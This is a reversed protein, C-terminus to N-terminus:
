LYGLDQLNEVVDENLNYEEPDGEPWPGYEQKITSFLREKLKNAVNEDNVEVEPTSRVNYLQERGLSDVVLKYDTTRIGKRGTSFDELGSDSLSRGHPTKSFKEVDREGHEIFVEDRTGDSILSQGDTFSPIEGLALESITPYLDILSALGSGSDVKDASIDPGTLLLPVRLTEDFLKHSHGMLGHEGLQEGHDATVVLYTDDALERKYFELFRGFEDDLYKISAAYWRKLVEIEADSLYSPNSLYQGIGDASQVHELRDLRVDSNRHKGRKNLLYELLFLRPEKFEPDVGERYGYPPHYPAHAELLNAFAFFPGDSSRVHNKLHNFKFRTNKMEGRFATRLADKFLEGDSLINAFYDKTPKRDSYGIDYYPEFYHDFGRDYGFDSAIKSPGAIGVTDYGREDFWEPLTPNDDPLNIYQGTIGSNSPYQGTFIGGHSIPTGPGVAFANEYIVGKEAVSDINSTKVAKGGYSSLYDPRLTDFVFLIVNDRNPM